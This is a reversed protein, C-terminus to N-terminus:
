WEISSIHKLVVTCNDIEIFTKYTEIENYDNESSFPTRNIINLPNPTKEIVMEKFEDKTKEIYYEKGSDMIIKAM